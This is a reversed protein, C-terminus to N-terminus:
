KSYVDNYQTGHTQSQAVHTLHWDWGWEPGFSGFCSPYVGSCERTGSPCSFLSLSSFCRTICPWVHSSMTLFVLLLLWSCKRMRKQTIRAEIKGWCRVRTFLREKGEAPCDKKHDWRGFRGDSQFYDEHRHESEFYYIQHSSTFSHFFTLSECFSNIQLAQLTIIGFATSNSDYRYNLHTQKLHM